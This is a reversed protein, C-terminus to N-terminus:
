SEKRTTLNGGGLARRTVRRGQESETDLGPLYHEVLYTQRAEAAAQREM